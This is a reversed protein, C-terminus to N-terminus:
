PAAGTHETDPPSQPRTPAASESVSYLEPLLDRLWRRIPLSPHLDLLEVLVSIVRKSRHDRIWIEIPRLMPLGGVRFRRTLHRKLTRAADRPKGGEFLRSQVDGISGVEAIEGSGDEQILTILVESEEQVRRELEEPSTHGVALVAIQNGDAPRTAASPASLIATLAGLMMGLSGLMLQLTARSVAAPPENWVDELEGRGDRFAPLEERALRATSPLPARQSALSRIELVQVALASREGRRQAATILAHAAIQPSSGRCLAALDPAITRATPETALVLREGPTLAIPFSQVDPETTGDGIYGAVVEKVLNEAEGGHLAHARGAGVRAVTIQHAEVVAAVVAAGVRGEQRHGLGSKEVAEHAATFCSRLREDTSNEVSSRYAAVIASTAAQAALRSPMPGAAGDAMVMLHSPGFGAYSSATSPVGGIAPENWQGIGVSFEEM